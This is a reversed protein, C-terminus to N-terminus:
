VTGVRATRALILALSKGANSCMRRPSASGSPADIQCLAKQLRSITITPHLRDRRSCWVGSSGSFAFRDCPRPAFGHSEEALSHALSGFTRRPRVPIHKDLGVPSKAYGTPAQCGPPVIDHLGQWSRDPQRAIKRLSGLSKKHSPRSHPACSSALM